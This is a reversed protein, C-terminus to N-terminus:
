ARGGGGPGGGGAAEAVPGADGQGVGEGQEDAHDGQHGPGAEGGAEEGVVGGGGGGSVGGLGAVRRGMRVGCGVLRKRRLGGMISTARTVISVGWHPMPYLGARSGREGVKPFNLDRRRGISLEDIYLSSM